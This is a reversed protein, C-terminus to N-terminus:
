QQAVYAVLVILVFGVIVTVWVKGTVAIGLRRRARTIFLTCLIALFVLLILGAAM